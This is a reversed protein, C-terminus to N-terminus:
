PKATTASSTRLSASHLRRPHRRANGLNGIAHATVRRLRNGHDALAAILCVIPRADRLAHRLGQRRDEGASFASAILHPADHVVHIRLHGGALRQIGLHLLDQSQRLFIRRPYRHGGRMPARQLLKGGAHAVHLSDVFQAGLAFHCHSLM